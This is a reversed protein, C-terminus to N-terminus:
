KASRLTFRKMAGQRGERKDVASLTEGQSGAGLSGVIVYRGQGVEVGAAAEESIPSNEPM